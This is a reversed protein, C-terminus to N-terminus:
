SRAQGRKQQVEKIKRITGRHVQVPGVVAESVRHFHTRDEYRFPLHFLLDGCTRVGLDEALAEATQSRNGQPVRDPYFRQPSPM